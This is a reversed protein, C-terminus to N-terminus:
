LKTATIKLEKEAVIKYGYNKQKKRSCNLDLTKGGDFRM